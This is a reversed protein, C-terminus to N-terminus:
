SYDTDAQTGELGVRCTVQTIKFAFYVIERPLKSTPKNIPKWVKQPLKKQPLLIKKDEKVAKGGVGVESNPAAKQGKPLQSPLFLIFDFLIM